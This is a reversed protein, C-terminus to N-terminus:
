RLHLKWRGGSLLLVETVETVIVGIEQGVIEVIIAQRDNWGDVSLGFRRALEIVPIVTGRLSIIGEMFEPTNPLRTVNNYQIIERVQSISVGNEDSRRQINGIKM